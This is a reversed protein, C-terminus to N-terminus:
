HAQLGLSTYFGIFYQFSSKGDLRLTGFKSGFRTLILNTKMTNDDYEYQLTGERDGMTYVTEAFDKITYIGPSLDYTIFNSKYQKLILNNDDEDLGVVIRLCREFGRFLSRAYGLLM